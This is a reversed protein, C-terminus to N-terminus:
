HWIIDPQPGVAPRAPGALTVSSGASATSPTPFGSQAAQTIMVSVAASFGIVVLSRTIKEVFQM